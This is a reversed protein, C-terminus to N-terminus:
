LGSAKAPDDHTLWIRRPEAALNGATFHRRLRFNYFSGADTLAVAAAGAGSLGRAGEGGQFLRNVWDEGSM